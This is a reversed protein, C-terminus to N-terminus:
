IAAEHLEKKKELLLRCVLNSQSQLESTHEESRGAPRVQGPRAVGGTPPTQPMTNAQFSGSAPVASNMTGARSAPRDQTTSTAGWRSLPPSPFLPSNPPRAIM